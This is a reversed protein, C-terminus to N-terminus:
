GHVNLTNSAQTRDTRDTWSHEADMHIIHTKPPAFPQLHKHLAGGGRCPLPVENSWTAGHLLTEFRTRCMHSKVIQKNRRFLDGFILFMPHIAFFDVPSPDIKLLFRTAAQNTHSVNHCGDSFIVCVMMAQQGKWIIKWCTESTSQARGTQCFDGRHGCWLRGKVVM